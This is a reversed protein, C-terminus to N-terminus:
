PATSGGGSGSSTSSNGRNGPGQGPRGQSNGRVLVRAGPELRDFGSTALQANGAVGSVATDQENSALVSVPQVNVTNNPTVSYV